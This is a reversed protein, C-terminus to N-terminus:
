TCFDRYCIIPYHRLHLCAMGLVGLGLITVVLQYDGLKLQRPGSCPRCPLTLADATRFFKYSMYTGDKNGSISQMLPMVMMVPSCQARRHM